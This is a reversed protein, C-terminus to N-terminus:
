PPSENLISTRPVAPLTGPLEVIRTATETLSHVHVLTANSNCPPRQARAGVLEGVRLSSPNLALEFTFADVSSQPALREWV